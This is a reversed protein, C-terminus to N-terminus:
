EGMDYRSDRPAAQPPGQPQAPMPKKSNDQGRSGAFVDDMDAARGDDMKQSVSQAMGQCNACHKGEASAKMKDAPIEEHDGVGLHRKLEQHEPDANMGPYAEHVKARVQSKEAPSGHQSVRALANQAHSKDPIPYSRGPGAFEKDPLANRSATDLKAM